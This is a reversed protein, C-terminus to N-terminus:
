WLMNHVLYLFPTPPLINTDRATSEVKARQLLKCCSSFRRHPLSFESTYCLPVCTQWNYLTYNYANKKQRTKVCVCVCDNEVIVDDKLLVAALLKDAYYNCSLNWAKGAAPFKLMRLDQMRMRTVATARLRGLDNQWFHLHCSVALCAYVKRIHSQMFHCPAHNYPTCLVTHHVCFKRRSPLLKMRCWGHWRKLVGSRHINM